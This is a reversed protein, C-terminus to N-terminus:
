RLSMLRALLGAEVMVTPRPPTIVSADIGADALQRDDLGRLVKRALALELRAQLKAVAHAPWDLLGSRRPIGIIQDVSADHVIQSM